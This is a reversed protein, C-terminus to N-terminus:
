FLGLYHCVEDTLLDKPYDSLHDVNFPGWHKYTQDSVKVNKKEGHIPLLRYPVVLKKDVSAIVVGNAQPSHHSSNSAFYLMVRSVWDKHFFQKFARAITINDATAYMKDPFLLTSREYLANVKDAVVMLRCNGKESNLRLEKLLVAMCDSAHKIRNIGHDVISM